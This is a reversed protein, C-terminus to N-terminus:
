DNEECIVIGGHIIVRKGNEDDFFIENESQSIDFKGSWSKIEEGNYDYVTVTRDLGGEFDSTISKWERQCSACGTLGVLMFVGLIVLVIIRKKM